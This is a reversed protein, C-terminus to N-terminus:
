MKCCGELKITSRNAMHLVKSTPRITSLKLKEMTEKTMVNKVTGLYVLTNAIPTNNINIIINPSRPDGYKKTFVKGMMLNTLKGIVHVIKTDGKKRRLKKLYLEYVVMEYIVVDKIAQFM